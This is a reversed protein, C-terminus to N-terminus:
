LGCIYLGYSYPGYTCLGHSCLGYRYLGYSHRPAGCSLPPLRRGSYSSRGRRGRIGLHMARDTVGDRRSPLGEERFFQGPRPKSAPPDVHLVSLHTPPDNPRLTPPDTFKNTQQDTPSRTFMKCPRTRSRVSRRVALLRLRVHLSLLLPAGHIQPM